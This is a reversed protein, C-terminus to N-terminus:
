RDDEKYKKLLIKVDDIIDDNWGEDILAKILKNFVDIVEKSKM